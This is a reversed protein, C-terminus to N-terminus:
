EGALSPTATPTVGAEARFLPHVTLLLAVILLGGGIMIATSVAGVRQIALGVIAMGVPLSGYVLVRIISNVRGQLAGPILSMRYTFQAVNQVSYIAGLTAMVLGLAFPTPALAYLLWVGAVLWATGAFLIHFPWRGAIREAVLAGAVTGAGGLGLILGTEPATARLREALVIVLLAEGAVLLNGFGLILTLARLVRHRWVWLVGEVVDNRVTQWTLPAAPAADPASAPLAIRRLAFFSACYSLADLLFPAMRSVAYLAGGLAPGLLTTMGDTLSLYQATAAPLQAPTVVAPLVSVEALDFFVFFTGEVVAVVFIQAVSLRGLLLAAPISALAIARAGECIVLVRRRDWRDVLAGAPLSLALYPLM